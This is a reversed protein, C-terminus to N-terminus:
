EEGNVTADRTPPRSDDIEHSEYVREDFKGNLIERQKDLLLFVTIACPLKRMQQLDVPKRQQNNHIHAAMPFVRLFEKVVEANPNDQCALWHLPTFGNIDAYSAANRYSKLVSIVIDASIRKNSSAKHLPLHGFKDQIRLAEPYAEILQNVILMTPHKASLALHLALQGANNPQRIGNPHTALLMRFSRSSAKTLDSSNMAAKHLPLLGYRNVVSCCVPDAEILLLFISPDVTKIYQAAVHLSNSGSENLKSVRTPDSALLSAIVAENPMARQLEEHLLFTGEPDPAKALRMMDKTSVRRMTEAIRLYSTDAM